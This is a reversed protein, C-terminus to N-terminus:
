HNRRHRSNSQFLIGTISLVIFVILGVSALAHVSFVILHAGLLSSLFIMAWEFLGLMLVLGIIGGILVVIWDFPGPHSGTTLHMMSLTLYSGAVFGAIGIALKQLFLALIIGILGLILAGMLITSQPQGHFLQTGAELGSAFGLAGVFLWFLKRGFFLLACGALITILVQIPM